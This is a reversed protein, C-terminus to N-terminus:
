FLTSRRHPKASPQRDAPASTPHIQSQEQLAADLRKQAGRRWDPLHADILFNAFIRKPLKELQGDVGMPSKPGFRTWDAMVEARTTLGQDIAYRLVDDMEDFSFPGALRELIVTPEDIQTQKLARHISARTYGTRTGVPHIDPTLQLAELAEAVEVETMKDLKGLVEWARDMQEPSKADKGSAIGNLLYRIHRGALERAVIVQLGREPTPVDKFREKLPLSDEPFLNFKGQGASPRPAKQIRIGM